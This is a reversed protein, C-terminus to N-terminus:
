KIEVLEVAKLANDCVIECCNKLDKRDGYGSHVGISNIKAEKASICDLCTDGIMYVKKNKSNLKELAKFIPEPHPKPNNVDDRGILVKFYQMVGFHAMLEESYKSTKTTVIGLTAIKSAKIIAEKAFPLLKTKAKSIPRYHKKYADVYDWKKKESVGLKVFMIDLPLGILSKIKEDDPIPINFARFSAYFSELIAETSDILTGDLDFLIIM